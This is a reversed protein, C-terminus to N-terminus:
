GSLWPPEPIPFSQPTLNEPISSPDLGYAQPYLLISMLYLAKWVRPSPRVIVDNYEYSVFYIRGTQVATINYAADGLLSHLYDVFEQRTMNLNGHGATVVIVDPNVQVLSEPSVPQWGTVNSYANVGGAITIIDNEFTGSGAIYLPNVWVILAASQRPAGTQNIYSEIYARVATANEELSAAIAAAEAPHGTAQGVILISRIVDGFTADPLLIVPIGYHSLEEKLQHNSTVSDLGIVLDPRVALIAEVSPFWGSGIDILSGNERMEAVEPPYDSYSDVAVVQGGAGVAWLIETVSPFLSVIRVPRQPITVPQGTADVVTAPYLILQYLQDVQSAISSIEGQLETLNAQGAEVADRLEGLRSRLQAVEELAGQLSQSQNEEGAELAELREELRQLSQSLAELQSELRNQTTNQSSRLERLYRAAETVNSSVAEISRELEEQGRQLSSLRAVAYAAVGLAILATLVSAAVLLRGEGAAMGDVALSSPPDVV